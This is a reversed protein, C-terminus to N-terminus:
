NLKSHDVVGESYRQCELDLALAEEIELKKEMPIEDMTLMDVLTSRADPIYQHWTEEVWQQMNPFREYVRNDRAVVEYIERAMACAVDRVMEHAVRTKMPVVLGSMTLGAMLNPKNM